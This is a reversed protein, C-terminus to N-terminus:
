HPWSITVLWEIIQHAVQTDCGILGHDGDPYFAHTVSQIRDEFFRFMTNSPWTQLQDQGGIYILSRQELWFQRPQSIRFLYFPPGELISLLAKRTIPSPYTYTGQKVGYETIPLWDYGKELGSAIKLRSIQASVEEPAIYNSQLQYSDCPSLLIFDYKERRTLLYHIIRDCGLSHGQLIIKRSFPKVFDIAAQIDTLCNSFDTLSGGTYGTDNGNYNSDALGDHGTLNFSLFNIQNKAYVAAFSKIFGQQYFNGLSGHIHIITIDCRECQYLIGDHRFGNANPFAVLEGLTSTSM